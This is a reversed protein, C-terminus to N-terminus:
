LRAQAPCSVRRVAAQTDQDGRNIVHRKTQRVCIDGFLALNGSRQKSPRTGAADCGVLERERPLYPLAVPPRGYCHPQGTDRGQRSEGERDEHARQYPRYTRCLHTDYWLTDRM